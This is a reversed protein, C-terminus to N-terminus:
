KKAGHMKLLKALDQKQGDDLHFHNHAIDGPIKFPMKYKDFLREKWNKPALYFSNEFELEILPFVEQTSYSGNGPYVRPLNDLADIIHDTPELSLKADSFLKDLYFDFNDKLAFQVEIDTECYGQSELKEWIKKAEERHLTKYHKMLAYASENEGHNPAYDNVFIDLCYPALHGEPLRFKLQVCHNLSNTETHIYIEDVVFDKECVMAAKLKEVDRRMMSVDIDDDWPIFGKHRIAGLLTGFDIWYPIDNARCVEDLKKLLILVATQMDRTEQSIGLMESLMLKEIEDCNGNQQSARYLQLQLANRTALLEELLLEQQEQMEALARRLKRYGFPSHPLTSERFERHENKKNSSM